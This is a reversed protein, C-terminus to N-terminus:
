IGQGAFHIIQDNLGRVGRRWPGHQDPSDRTGLDENRHTREISVGRHTRVVVWPFPGDFPRQNAGECPHWWGGPIRIASYGTGPNMFRVWFLDSVQHPVQNPTHCLGRGCERIVVRRPHTPFPATCVTPAHQMGQLSQGCRLWSPRQNRDTIRIRKSSIVM